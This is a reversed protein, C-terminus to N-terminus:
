LDSSDGESECDRGGYDPNKFTDLKPESENGAQDMLPNSLNGGLVYMGASDGGAASTLAKVSMFTGAIIVLGIAVVLLIRVVLRSM